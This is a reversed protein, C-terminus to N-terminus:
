YNRKRSATSGATDQQLQEACADQKRKLLPKAGLLILTKKVPLKEGNKGTKQGPPRAYEVAVEQMVINVVQATKAPQVFHMAPVGAEM